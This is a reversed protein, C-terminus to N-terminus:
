WHVILLKNVSADLNSQKWQWFSLFISLFVVNVIRSRFESEMHNSHSSGGSKEGNGTMSECPTPKAWPRRKANMCINRFQLALANAPNERFTLILTWITCYKMKCNGFVRYFQLFFISILLYLFVFTIIQKQWAEHHCLLQNLHMWKNNWWINLPDFWFCFFAFALENRCKQM